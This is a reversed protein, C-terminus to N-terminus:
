EPFQPLTLKVWSLAATQQTTKNYAPHEATEEAETRVGCYSRERREVICVAVTGVAWVSCVVSLVIVVTGRVLLLSGAGKSLCVVSLVIVVTGRVLLM